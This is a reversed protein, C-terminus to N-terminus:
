RARTRRRCAARCCSTPTARPTTSSSISRSTSSSSRSAARSSARQRAALGEPQLLDRAAGQDRRRRDEPVDRLRRRRARASGAEDIGWVGAIYRRHEPNSIDRWGPLQDCKQGHERGGQGNAQGSSPATAARRSASAAPPSCSTSRASRTRCATRTTSSAARTSSSARRRPAGGSRRRGSRDSPCAPSRRPARSRGSAPLVRRGARLRGHAHRHVARDIWDHEIMLHLVGAFLAADRGPKVPLYLDCTRAVPTIRPDQVIM